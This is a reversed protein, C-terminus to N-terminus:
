TNVILGSCHMAGDMEFGKLSIMDHSLIPLPYIDLNLLLHSRVISTMGMKVYYYGRKTNSSLNDSDLGNVYDTM